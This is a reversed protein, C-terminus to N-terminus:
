VFPVLDRLADRTLRRKKVEASMKESITILVDVISSETFITLPLFNPVTKAFGMLSTMM